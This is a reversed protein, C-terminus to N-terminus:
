EAMQAAWPQDIGAPAEVVQEQTTEAIRELCQGLGPKVRGQEHDGLVEGVRGLEGQQSLRHSCPCSIADCM